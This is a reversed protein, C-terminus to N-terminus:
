ACPKLAEPVSCLSFLFFILLFIGDPQDLPPVEWDVPLEDRALAYHRHGVVLFQWVTAARFGKSQCIGLDRRV